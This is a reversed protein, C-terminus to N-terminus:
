RQCWCSTPDFALRVEPQQAQFIRAVGDSTGLAVANMHFGKPLQQARVWSLSRETPDFAHVELGFREILAVDFSADEGVGVSYVVSSANLGSPCVTHAGYRNGLVLRPTSVQVAPRQGSLRQWRVRLSADLRSLLRRTVQMGRAPLRYM